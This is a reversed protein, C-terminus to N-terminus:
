ILPTHDHDRFMFLVPNGSKTESASIEIEYLGTKENECRCEGYVGGIMNTFVSEYDPLPFFENKHLDLYAQVTEQKNKMYFVENFSNHISGAM